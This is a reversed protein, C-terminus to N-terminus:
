YHAGPAIELPLGDLAPSVPIQCSLRSCDDVGETLELMAFEAESMAPLRSLWDRNVHIHCTACSCAGGCDALIPLGADRLAEMLNGSAPLPVHLEGGAADKVVIRTVDKM